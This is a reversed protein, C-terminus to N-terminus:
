IYITDNSIENEISSPMIYSSPFYINTAERRIINYQINREVIKVLVVICDNNVLNKICKENEITLWGICDYISDFFIHRYKVALIKSIMKLNNKIAESRFIECFSGNEYIVITKDGYLKTYKNHYILYDEIITM